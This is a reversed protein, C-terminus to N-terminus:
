NILLKKRIYNIRPTKIKVKGDDITIVADVINEIEKKHTIVIVTHNKKLENLIKIVNQINDTDLSSTAEDFILIKADKLLTRTLSLLRKQGSSINHSNEDIITDYGKPLTKIFKDIGTLKCMEEQKKIDNEVLNFNERISLNFLYSEQNLVSIEKLYSNKDIEKVDINDLFM